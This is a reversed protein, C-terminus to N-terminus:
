TYKLNHSSKNYRTYLAPIRYSLKLIHAILIGQSIYSVAKGWHLKRMGATKLKSDKM